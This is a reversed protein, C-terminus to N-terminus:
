AIDNFAADIEEFQDRFKKWQDKTLSIGKRGQLPQNDQNVIHKRRSVPLWKDDKEYFERIDLLPTRGNL